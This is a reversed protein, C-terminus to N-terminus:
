SMLLENLDLEFGIWLPFLEVEELQLWSYSPKGSISDRGPWCCTMDENGAGIRDRGILGMEMEESGVPSEVSSVSDSISSESIDEVM